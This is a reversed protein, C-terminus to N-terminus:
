EHDRHKGRSDELGEYLDVGWSKSPNNFRHHYEVLEDVRDIDDDKLECKLAAFNESIWKKHSSKPIVSTGRHLGWQLAVQASTCERKEAITALVENELLHPLDGPSYTPNTGAFPSYATVHIGHEEHWALWDRQPLYPHLEMQHVAPPHSTHVLLQELQEPSFNAVGIHRTKGKKVLEVMSDWTSLYEIKKGGLTSDAVPWHMHYLDLHDLQLDKLAINIGEEVTKQSGHSPTIDIAAILFYLQPSSVPREM